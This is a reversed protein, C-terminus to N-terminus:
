LNSVCFSNDRSVNVVSNSNSATGGSHTPPPGTRVSGWKEKLGRSCCIPSLAKMLGVRYHKNKFFYIFPNLCSNCLSMIVTTHYLPTNFPLDAGMNYIFFFIQNPAWCIAFTIVVILLTNSLEQATKLQWVEKRRASKAGPVRELNAASIDKNELVKAKGKLEAIMKKHSFFNFGIPIIYVVCFTYVGVLRQIAPHPYPQISCLGEENSYILWFYGNSIIGIIWCGVMFLISKGPAFIIKYQMPYVIAVFRELHVCVLSYVSAFITAWLPFKNIFLRCLMEGFVGSPLAPSGPFLNFPIIWVCTLFDTLALHIIFHSTRNRLSPIRFLVFVVLMNGTLGFSAIIAYTVRVFASREIDSVAWGSDRVEGFSPATSSNVVFEGM